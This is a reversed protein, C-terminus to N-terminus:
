ARVQEPIWDGGTGADAITPDAPAEALLYDRTELALRRVRDVDVDTLKGDRKVVRGKVLVTDVNGAHAAYVVAGWPNNMPTLALTDTKIMIVDAEKGPTLSGVKDDLGCAIAGQLTAFEVMDKCSLRLTDSLGTGDEVGKAHDLARQSSIATQMLGFMDGGISSCVDVSLSPRIGADLLRGTAPWGHGMQMEVTAAVSATGGSDAIMMLEDDALENCHVYTVQDSLLDNERLWEIPRSRGWEGDGVHVTIRTGVEKALAYDALTAEKTAFQPGRLAMALTVLQDESSFYEDRLRKVDDSHPIPSPLNSWQENGSGHAFVARAGSDKLGEIAADSHAPTALNHSWDLLTTIGSDLAESTGLLNGIYTDEPRFHKSFGSHIGMLYHGLTWDSALLRLPAQWTHRHTDVFGPMAIATPMSIREADTVGLDAGVDVIKGDEVLIQGPELVGLNPDM